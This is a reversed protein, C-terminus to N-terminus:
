HLNVPDVLATDSLRLGHSGVSQTGSLERQTVSCSTFKQNAVLESTDRRDTQQTCKCESCGGHICRRGYSLHIASRENTYDEAIYLHNYSDLVCQEMSTRSLKGM